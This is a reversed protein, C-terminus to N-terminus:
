RGDYLSGNQKAMQRKSCTTREKWIWLETKWTSSGSTERARLRFTLFWLTLCLFSGQLQVATEAIIPFYGPFVRGRRSKFGHRRSVLQTTVALQAVFGANLALSIKPPNRKATFSDSWFWLTINLRNLPRQGLFSPTQVLGCIGSLFNTTDWVPFVWSIFNETNCFLNNM